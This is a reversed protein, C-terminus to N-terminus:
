HAAQTCLVSSLLSFLFLFCFLFLFPTFLSFSFLCIFSLTEVLSLFGLSILDSGPTAPPPLHAALPAPLHLSGEERM